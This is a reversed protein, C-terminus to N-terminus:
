RLTEKCVYMGWDNKFKCKRGCEYDYGEGTPNYAQVQTDVWNRCEEISALESSQTNKTLDSENPYYFGIWVDPKFFVSYAAFGIIILIVIGIPKQFKNM